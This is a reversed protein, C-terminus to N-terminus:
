HKLSRQQRGEPRVVLFDKTTSNQRLEGEAYINKLHIQSTM